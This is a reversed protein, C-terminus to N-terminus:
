QGADFDLDALILDNGFHRGTDDVLHAELRFLLDVQDDLQPSESVEFRISM